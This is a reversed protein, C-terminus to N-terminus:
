QLKSIQRYIYVFGCVVGMLVFVILTMIPLQLWKILILGINFFVTISVIMVLGIKFLLSIYKGTDGWQTMKAVGM